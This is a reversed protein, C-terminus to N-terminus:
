GIGKEHREQRGRGYDDADDDQLLDWGPLFDCADPEDDTADEGVALCGRSVGGSM